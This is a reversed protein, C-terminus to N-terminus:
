PSAAKDALPGASSLDIAVEPESVFDIIRFGLPNWGRLKPDNSPTSYGYQITAIWRTMREPSGNAQLESKVYRVQALDSVGSGRKFFSVAQVQARTLSGDRHVNLPSKPNTKQWLAYWAQNRQAGHFAGCEEYDSEATSYNFRECVTVYHSLFYRTVAEDMPAGATYVPVVDVMGTSNDVRIVFPEVKKLPMLTAVACAASVACLWGGMAVRWAIRANRQTLAVRDTDWRAAEKFYSDLETTM